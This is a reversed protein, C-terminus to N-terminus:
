DPSSNTSPALKEVAAAAKPGYATARYKPNDLLQRYCTRARDPANMKEASQGAMYLGAACWENYGYLIEIRLFERMAGRADGQLLLCEAIGYQARAATVTGTGAIVARYAENADAYAGLHQSCLGVGYRMEHILASKPYAKAAARYAALGKAWDKKARYCEALQFRALETLQESPKVEITKKFLTLADDLRGLSQLARGRHYLADGAYPSQPCEDILRAFVQEAPGHQEQHAHALGWRYLIRDKLTEVKAKAAAQYHAVAAPYDKADFLLNGLEFRAHALV